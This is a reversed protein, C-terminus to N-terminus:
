SILLSMKWVNSFYIKISMYCTYLFISLDQTHHIKVLPVFDGLVWILFCFEMPM